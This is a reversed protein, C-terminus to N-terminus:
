HAGPRSPPLAATPKEDDHTWKFELQTEGVTLIDGPQLEHPSHVLAGNIWSRGPSGPEHILVQDGTWEIQCHVRSVRPDNLCLWNNVERGISLKRGRSFSYSLGQNPGQIIKLVGMM